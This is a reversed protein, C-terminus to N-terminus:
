TRPLISEARHNQMVRGKKGNGESPPFTIEKNEEIGASIEKEKLIPILGGIIAEQAGVGIITIRSRHILLDEKQVGM